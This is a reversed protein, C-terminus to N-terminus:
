FKVFLLIATLITNLGILGAIIIPLLPKEPNVKTTDIIALGNIVVGNYDTNLVDCSEMIYDYDLSITRDTGDESVIVTNTYLNFTLVQFISYRKLFVSDKLVGDSVIRGYGGLNSRLRVGRSLTIKNM